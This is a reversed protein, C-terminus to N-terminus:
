KKLEIVRTSFVPEGNFEATEVIVIEGERITAVYGKKRGIRDDKAIVHINKLPDMIMAKPTKVDWMVALLTLEDIEFRELPTAPGITVSNGDEGRVVFPRFPNRRGERADFIYPELFDKAPLNIVQQVQAEPVPPPLNPDAQPMAPEQAQAFNLLLTFLIVALSIM